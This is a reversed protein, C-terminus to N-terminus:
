ALGRGMQTRTSCLASLTVIHEEDYVTLRRVPPGRDDAVDPDLPAPQKM